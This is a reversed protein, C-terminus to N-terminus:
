GEQGPEREAAKLRKVHIGRAEFIKAADAQSLEKKITTSNLTWWTSMDEVAKAAGGAEDCKVSWQEFLSFGIEGGGAKGNDDM